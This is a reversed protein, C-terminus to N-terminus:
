ERQNYKTQKTNGVIKQKNQRPNEGKPKYTM